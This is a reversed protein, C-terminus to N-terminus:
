SNWRFQPAAKLQDKTANLVARDPTGNNRRDNAAVNGAPMTSGATGTSAATNAPGTGPSGLGTASTGTANPSGAANSGSATNGSATNGTGTNGARDRNPGVGATNTGYEFHLQSFPVAVQHDGIGLFAL